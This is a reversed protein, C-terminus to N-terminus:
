DDQVMEEDHDYDNLVEEAPTNEYRKWEKNDRKYEKRKGGREEDFYDFKKRSDKWSKGM